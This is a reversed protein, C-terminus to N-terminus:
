KTATTFVTQLKQLIVGLGLSINDNINDNDNNDSLLSSKSQSISKLKRPLLLQQIMSNRKETTWKHQTRHQAKSTRTINAIQVMTDAVYDAFYDTTSNNKINRNRNNNSNDNDDISNDKDIDIDDINKLLFHMANYATEKYNQIWDKMKITHVYQQDDAHINNEQKHQYVIKENYDNLRIINNIM